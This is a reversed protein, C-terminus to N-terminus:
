RFSITSKVEGGSGSEMALYKQFNDIKLFHSPLLQNNRIAWEDKCLNKIAIDFDLAAYAKGLSDLHGKSENTLLNINSEKSTLKARKTNFWTLFHIFSKFPRESNEREKTENVNVSVTDSVTVTPKTSDSLENLETTSKTSELEAKKRRAEASALGAIRAKESRKHANDEWRNLDRKLTTKMDVFMLKTLRDPAIPNLDNVYRFLHKVLRGAEDDELEEFKDIWDAYVIIGKKDKAM